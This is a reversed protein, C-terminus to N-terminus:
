GKTAPKFRRSLYLFPTDIAAVTVKVIYTFLVNEWFIDYPIVGDINLFSFTTLGVATFILTDLLQSIMTSGNNRLWLFKGGTANKIKEFLWIDVRQSVFYALLSGLIIRPTVGFLTTLSGQAFDYDNVNFALLVQTFILFIVMAGFGLNVAEKAKKKGYHESILDTSLFCAGYLANGGTVALGFIDFQKVVFINMMLTYIVILLFLYNYGKKLAILNLGMLFLTFGIFIVENM